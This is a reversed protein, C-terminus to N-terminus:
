VSDTTGSNMRMPSTADSDFSDPPKNLAARTMRDPNRPPSATAVSAADAQKPATDPDDSALAAVMVRM